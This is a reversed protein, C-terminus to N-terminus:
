RRNRAGQLADDVSYEGAGALVLAAAMGLISLNYEYGGNQAFFGNKGHVKAIAVVMTGALGVAGLRTLLGALVLLGGGFEVAGALPAMVSGPKLGIQDFFDATGKLGQGGFWGFLKQAGHAVFVGGLVVRLVLLAVNVVYFRRERSERVLM